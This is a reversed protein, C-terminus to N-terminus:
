SIKQTSTDWKLQCDFTGTALTAEAFMESEVGDSIVAHLSERVRPLMTSDIESANSRGYKTHSPAYLFNQRTLKVSKWPM